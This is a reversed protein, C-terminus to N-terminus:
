RRVQDLIVKVGHDGVGLPKLSFGYVDGPAKTIPDGDKDLRAEILIKAGPKPAEGVMLNANTIVFSAPFKGADLRTVALPPAPQDVLRALVYITWGKFDMKKQEAGLELTGDVILAGSDISPANGYPTGAAPPPTHPTVPAAPSKQAEVMVQKQAVPGESFGPANETGTPLHINGAKEIPIYHHDQCAFLLLALGAAVLAPTDKKM